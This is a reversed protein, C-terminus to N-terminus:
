GYERLELTNYSEALLIGEVQVQVQVQLRQKSPHLTIRADPM